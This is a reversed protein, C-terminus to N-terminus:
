FPKTSLTTFKWTMRPVLSTYEFTKIGSTTSLDTSQFNRVNPVLIFNHAVDIIVMKLHKNNVAIIYRPNLTFAGDKKHHVQPTSTGTVFSKNIAIRVM